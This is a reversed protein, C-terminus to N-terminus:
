MYEDRLDENSEKSINFDDNSSDQLFNSPGDSSSIGSKTNSSLEMPHTANAGSRLNMPTSQSAITAGRRKEGCSKEGRGRSERRKGRRGCSKRAKTTAIIQTSFCTTALMVTQLTVTLQKPIVRSKLVKTHHHCVSIIFILYYLYYPYSLPPESVGFRLNDSLKFM